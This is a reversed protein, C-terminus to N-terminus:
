FWGCKVIEVGTEDLMGEHNATGKVLVWFPNLKDRLEKGSPLMKRIESIKSSRTAALCAAGTGLSNPGALVMVVRDPWDPHPARVLLGYDVWDVLGGTEPDKKSEGVWKKCNEPTIEYLGCIYNGSEEQERSANPLLTGTKPDRPIRGLYWREPGTNEQIRRLMEGSLPNVWKSGVLYLNIDEHGLNEFSYQASVLEVGSDEGRLSGFAQLLGRIGLNDGFTRRDRRQGPHGKRQTPYWPSAVIFSPAPKPATLMEQLLVYRSGLRTRLAERLRREFMEGGERSEEYCIISRGKLDTPIDRSSDAILLLPRNRGIAYGVEYFVNERESSIEAVVLDAREILLHIVGLLDHGSTPLDDARICVRDTENEVVSKIVRYTSWHQRFAMIVFVFPRGGTVEHLISEVSDSM